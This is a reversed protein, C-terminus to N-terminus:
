AGSRSEGGKVGPVHIGGGTGAPDRKDFPVLSNKSVAANGNLLQGFVRIKQLGGVEQNVTIQGGLVLILSKCVGDGAVREQVFVHFTKVVPKGLVSVGHGDQRGHDARKRRKVLVAVVWGVRLLDFYGSMTEKGFDRGDCGIGVLFGDSLGKDIGIVRQVIAGIKEAHHKRHRGFWVRHIRNHGLGQVQQEDDMGIM